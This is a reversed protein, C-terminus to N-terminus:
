IELTNSKGTITCPPARCPGIGGRAMWNDECVYPFRNKRCVLIPRYTMDPTNVLLGETGIGALIWYNGELDL